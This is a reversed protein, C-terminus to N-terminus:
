RDGRGAFRGDAAAHEVAAPRGQRQPVPGRREGPRVPLDRHNQAAAADGLHIDVQTAALAGDARILYDDKESSAALRGYAIGGAPDLPVAHARDDNPEPDVNATTGIESHIVYPMPATSVPTVSVTYAGAPLRLDRIVALGDPGVRASALQQGTPDLLNEYISSGVPARLGLEWSSAADAPSLTWAYEDISGQVDGSVEYLGAIPSAHAVDDNPEIDGSPPLAGVLTITARYDLSSPVAHALPEGRSIGLLYQGPDLHVDSTIGTDRSDAHSDVRLVETGATVPTVGPRRPSACSM